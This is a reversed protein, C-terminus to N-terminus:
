IQNCVFENKYNNITLKYSSLQDKYFESAADISELQAKIVSPRISDLHKKINQVVLSEDKYIGKQMELKEEM